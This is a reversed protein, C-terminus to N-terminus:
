AGALVRDSIKEAMMIIPANTPARVVKPMSAGDVVRLREVGRVRMDTDLVAMPDGDAGMKCTGVPHHLTIATRRIFEDISADSQATPGPALEEAIFRALPKQKGIRRMTRVMERVAIRDAPTALFNQRIVAKDAPDSSALSVSGRSQPTVFVGKIGFADV